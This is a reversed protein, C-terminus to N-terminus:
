VPVRVHRTKLFELVRAFEMRARDLMAPAQGLDGTSGARELEQFPAVLAVIGCTASTGACRHAILGVKLTDGSNIAIGLDELSPPIQALYLDLIEEIEEGVAQRLQELDVPASSMDFQNGPVAEEKAAAAFSRELVRRLEDANVPKSVYDDMGAALCKERDGDLAHATMAVIQTHKRNAERRRIEATAEYGDMEPMQCDMLVVDYPIQALAEIAERGTAVVDARYGLRLLQRLAVKQNVVNDEALLILRPSVAKAETLVHKTILPSRSDAAAADEIGATASQNQVSALCDFLQSQRVPKTLYAAIGAARATAGDGRQGYSTLLVLSVGAIRPDSKIARALQFGDMGPMMLDLVTMNFPLGRAAASRLVALAQEASDAVEPIMKWSALQHRLIKRNTANDDVILVRVNELSLANSQVVASPAIQQHFKATFWFTSGKGEVSTVGIEGGMLNVLQKSIALGLGTGGYKRTTSGDAQTFAQFLYRQAIKSIGIGTDSIAFRIVVQNDAESEKSARVIVEGAETFKLANGILNTLVQRLRGPDGCLSTPVDSYILSALELKKDRARNAQLAVSGEVANRLDFDITEFQLKGAEIKSFDLIDNIITLLSEASVQITEAFDRQDASLETELLLGTMGLVGNMPTRIEHSMNALFESKLRASELAVDRAQELQAELQKRLSIDHLTSRIGVVCGGSDSILQDHIMLPVFTGDKRIFTREVPRLPEAGSLKAKIAERAVKEVIFDSAHRGYLETASYGLLRQETLNVRVFRGERDLEHYAVPANDFLDKFRAESKRVAEEARKREIALAIQGGVSNLFEVDRDSYAESDSYHQVTLVGIVGSPSELPIGLWSAPPTGFSTVEGQAVLREFIENTMLLPQGTRYIYDTRTGALRQPAPATDFQDVFFEMGFLETEQNFLAVFCNEAYLVKGISLHVLQLLEDLNSTTSVGQIIEFLVQQGAEVRKRDLIERMLGQNATELELTRAQVRVELEDHATLLGDEARQQDDIDTCTGYWKIIREQEDRVAHARGLHWRYNGDMRRKFRYKIEYPSGTRVAESWLAVCLDVDDPHLVSRWGWGKVQELTTGTYDFWRRNYYDLEGESNATWVIQPMADALQRFGEEAAAIHERKRAADPKEPPPQINQRPKM